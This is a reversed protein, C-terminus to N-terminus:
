ADLIRDVFHEEPLAGEFSTEDNIVIKPVGMVEHEVALAMFESAEVMDARIRPSEVALMHAMRVARPCHPCTPTIFVQLHIDKDLSELAEKTELSLSTSGRAVDVIGEVLSTFEYGAPVGYFKVGYDENGILVIAPSKDVGYEKAVDGDKEIDYIEAVIHESLEALENCIQKTENCFKCEHSKTFVLLSVDGELSGLTEKLNAKDDDNIMAM